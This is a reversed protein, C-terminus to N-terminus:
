MFAWFILEAFYFRFSPEAASGNLPAAKEQRALKATRM